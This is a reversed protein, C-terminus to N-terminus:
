SAASRVSTKWASIHRNSGLFFIYATVGQQEQQPQQHTEQQTDRITMSFSCLPKKETEKLRPVVACHWANLFQCLLCVFLKGM